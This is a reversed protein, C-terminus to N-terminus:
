GDATHKPCREKDHDHHSVFANCKLGPLGQQLVCLHCVLIWLPSCTRDSGMQTRKPPQQGPRIQCSTATYKIKSSQECMVEAVACVCGPFLVLRRRHECLCLLFRLLLLLLLCITHSQSSSQARSTTTSSNFSRQSHKPGSRYSTSIIAQVRFSASGKSEDRLRRGKKNEDKGSCM